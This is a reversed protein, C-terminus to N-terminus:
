LRREGALRSMLRLFAGNALAFMLLALAALVVPGPHSDSATDQLQSVLPSVGVSSSARRLLTARRSRHGPRHRETDKGAPRSTPRTTVAAPAQATPTAPRSVAAVRTPPQSTNVAPQSPPASQSTPAPQSPSQPAAPPSSSAQPTPASDPAIGTPAPSPDPAPAAWAVSPATALLGALAVTTLATLCPAQLDGETPLRVGHLHCSM